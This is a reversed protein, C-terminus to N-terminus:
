TYTRWDVSVCTRSCVSLRIRWYSSRSRATASPQARMLHPHDVVVQAPGPASAVARCPNLSRTASTPRPLDPDDEADLDAPQGAVVGVPILQQIQARQGVRQDGVGVADVVRGIEVVPQHEAQLARHALGLQVQDAGPQGGPQPVLGRSPLQPLRQRDPEVVVLVARHHDSGVLRHHLRDRRHEAAEGFQASAPLHQQRQAAVPQQQRAPRGAGSPHLPRRRGIRRHVVEQGVRGIGPREHEAAGAGLFAEVGGALHHVCRRSGRSCHATSMGSWWGPNM